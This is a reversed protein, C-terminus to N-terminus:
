HIRGLCITADKKSIADKIVEIKNSDVVIFIHGIHENISKLNPYYKDLFKKQKRASINEKYGHSLLVKLPITKKLLFVLQLQNPDLFIIFFCRDYNFIM